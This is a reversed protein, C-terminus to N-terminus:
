LPPVVGNLGVTVRAATFTGDAQRDANFSVHAGPKLADRSGPSLRVIPVGAPVQVKQEGGKYRLTLVRGQVGAVVSEVTANTMTNGKTMPRHGEGMGRMSDAFIHVELAVLEGDPGGPRAATGIFEGQTVDALRAATMATVTAGPDLRVDTVDGAPSRVALVSHDFTQIEGRIRVTQAFAPVCAAALLLSAMLHVPKVICDGM